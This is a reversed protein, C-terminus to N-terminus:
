TAAAAAGGVNHPTLLAPTSSSHKNNGHHRRRRPRPVSDSQKPVGNDPPDALKSADQREHNYRAPPPGDEQRRAAAAERRRQSRSPKPVDGPPDAPEVAVYRKRPQPPPPLTEDDPPDAAKVPVHRPPRDKPAKRRHDRPKPPAGNSVFVVKIGKQKDDYNSYRPTPRPHSAVDGFISALLRPNNTERSNRILQLTRALTQALNAEADVSFVDGLDRPADSDFSEYPDEISICWGRTKTWPHKPLLQGRRVSVHLAMSDFSALFVIHREFLAMLSADCLDESSSSSAEEAQINPVVRAQQLTSIALLSHAYSSLGGSTSDKLHRKAWLKVLLILEKARPYSAYKCLLDSNQVAIDNNVVLDVGLGTKPDRAKVVPVRARAIAKLNSFGSRALCRALAHVAKTKKKKDDSLQSPAQVCLDLDSAPTVLKSRRSGFVVCKADSWLYKRIAQECRLRVAETVNAHNEPPRQSRLVEALERCEGAEDVADPLTADVMGGNLERRRRYLEQSRKLKSAARKHHESSTEAERAALIGVKVALALLKLQTFADAVANWAKEQARCCRDVDSGAKELAAFAADVSMDVSM